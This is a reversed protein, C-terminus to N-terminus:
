ALLVFIHHYLTELPTGLSQFVRSSEQSLESHFPHPNWYYSTTQNALALYLIYIYCFLCIPSFSTDLFLLFLCFLGYIDMQSRQPAERLGLACDVYGQHKNSGQFGQISWILCQPDIQLIKVCIPTIKPTKLEKSMYSLHKLPELHFLHCFFHKPTHQADRPM